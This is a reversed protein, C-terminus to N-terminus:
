TLKPPKHLELFKGIVYLNNSIKMHLQEYCKGIIIIKIDIYDTTIDGKENNINTIQIKERKKRILGSLPKYINNIREFM